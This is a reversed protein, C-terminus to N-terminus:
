EAAEKADFVHRLAWRVEVLAKTEAKINDLFDEGETEREWQRLIADIGQAIAEVERYQLEAAIQAENRYCLREGDHTRVEICPTDEAVIYFGDCLHARRDRHGAAAARLAPWALRLLVLAFGDAAIDYAHMAANHADIRPAVYAVRERLSNMRGM